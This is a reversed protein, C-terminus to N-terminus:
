LGNPRPLHRPQARVRFLRRIRLDICGTWDPPPMTSGHGIIRSVGQRVRQLAAVRLDQDPNQRDKVTHDPAAAEVLPSRALDRFSQQLLAQESSIVIPILHMLREVVQILPETVRDPLVVAQRRGRRAGAQFTPPASVPRDPLINKSAWLTSHGHNVAPLRSPEHSIARTHGPKAETVKVDPHRDPRSPRARRAGPAAM